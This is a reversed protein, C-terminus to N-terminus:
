FTSPSQGAFRQGGQGGWFSSAGQAFPAALSGWGGSNAPQYQNMMPQGLAQQYMQMLNQFPAQGYQMAQNAGQSQMATRNASLNTALNSGERGLANQFASSDAGGGSGMASFKNSLGPIIEEHFQRMAPAEINKFFDPDNFLNNLYGQGQQFNENNQINQAGGKMGKIANLIDNIGGQQGSSFSSKQEAKNGGLAGAGASLASFLMMLTGPDM